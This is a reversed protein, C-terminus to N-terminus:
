GLVESLERYELVERWSVGRRLEESGTENLLGGPTCDFISGGAEEIDARARIFCDQVSLRYKPNKDLPFESRKTISWTASPDHAYGRTQEVGLFYFERYGMWAALQALTLPTTRGTPLPPLTDGLGQFGSSKVQSGNPDKQVWEFLEHHENPYWGVQFKRMDLAPWSFKDVLKREHMDSVGYYTPIFPLPEWFPFGNCCFTAEDQLRELLTRQLILSPGNGLIFIRGSAINHLYETM